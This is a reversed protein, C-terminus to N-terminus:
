LDDFNAYKRNKILNLPSSIILGITIISLNHLHNDKKKNSIYIYNFILDRTFLAPTGITLGKLGYKNIIFIYSNKNSMNNYWSHYKIFQLPNTMSCLSASLIATQLPSLNHSNNDIMTFYLGSTIIRTLITNLCGQFLNYYISKDIISINKTTSLYIIKDIPNFIISSTFGTIMGSLIDNYTM